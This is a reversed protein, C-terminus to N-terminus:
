KKKKPCGKLKKNSSITGSDIDFILSLLSKKGINMSGEYLCDISYTNAITHEEWNGEYLALNVVKVNHKGPTTTVTVSNKQSEKTVTSTTVLNGDIYIECKTDHDYGEVINCFLWSVTLKGQAFLTTTSFLAIILALSKLKM